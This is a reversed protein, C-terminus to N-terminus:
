FYEGLRIVCGPILANRPAQQVVSGVSESQAPPPVGFSGSCALQMGIPVAAFNFVPLAQPPSSGILHRRWPATVSYNYLPSPTEPVLAPSPTSISSPKPSTPFLGAEDFGLPEDPCFTVRHKGVESSASAAVGTEYDADMDRLLSGSLSELSTPFQWAHVAAAASVRPVPSPTSPLPTTGPTRGRFIGPLQPVHGFSAEDRSLESSSGSDTRKHSPPSYKQVGEPGSSDADTTSESAHSFKSLSRDLASEAKCDVACIEEDSPCKSRGMDKPLSHSRRKPGPLPTQPVKYQLFTHQVSYNIFGDGKDKSPSLCWRRAAPHLPTPTPTPVLVMPSGENLTDMDDFSLPEDACLPIRRPGNNLLATRFGCATTGPSMLLPAAPTPACPFGGTQIVTYGHGRLEVRCIDSFHPGQILESLKSYGFTTESLDIQYKSRFLRKINSLPAEGKATELIELVHKRAVELSAIPLISINNQDNGNGTTPQGYMACQEKMMSQSRAYPVVAGNMYGLIKKQSIALQVIHCIRGLSFGALPPLQLAQLAQACAYRGGPLSLNQGVPSECYARLESWLQPHYCDEPSYVDVFTSPQGGVVASWDGGDEEQVQLLECGDCVARVQKADVEPLADLKTISGVQGNGQLIREAVRKRLIRGFPKLEDAYLSRIAELVEEEAEAASRAYAPWACSEGAKGSANGANRAATAKKAAKQTVPARGGRRPGQQGSSRQSKSQAATSASSATAIEAGGNTKGGQQKFRQPGRKQSAAYNNKLAAM